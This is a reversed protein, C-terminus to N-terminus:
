EEPNGPPMNAELREIEARIAAVNEGYNPLADGRGDTRARLKKRLDAIREASMWVEQQGLSENGWGQGM